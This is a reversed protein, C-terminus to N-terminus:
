YHGAMCFSIPEGIVPSGCPALSPRIEGGCQEMCEAVADGIVAAPPLGSRPRTRTGPSLDIECRARIRPARVTPRVLIERRSSPSSTILVPLAIRARPARTSRVPEPLQCTSPTPTPPKACGPASRSKPLEPVPQRRTMPAVAPHGTAAVKSPSADRRLRGICRTRSGKIRMPACASLAASPPRRGM